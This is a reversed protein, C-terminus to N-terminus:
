KKSANCCLIRGLALFTYFLSSLSFKSVLALRKAYDFSQPWMKDVGNIVDLTGDLSMVVFQEAAAMWFEKPTTKNSM